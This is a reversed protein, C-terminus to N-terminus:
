STAKYTAKKPLRRSSVPITTTHPRKGSHIATPSLYPTTTSSYVLVGFEGCGCLGCRSQVKDVEGAFSKRDLAVGCAPIGAAVLCTMKHLHSKWVAFAKEAEDPSEPMPLRLLGNSFAYPLDAEATRRLVEDFTNSGKSCNDSASNHLGFHHLAPHVALEGRTGGQEMGRGNFLSPLVFYVSRNSPKQIELTIDSDVISICPIPKLGTEDLVQGFPETSVPDCIFRGTEKPISYM